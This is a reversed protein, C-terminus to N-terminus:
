VMSLRCANLVEFFEDANEFGCLLNLVDFSFNRWKRRTAVVRFLITLMRLSNRQRVPSDNDVTDVATWCLDQM